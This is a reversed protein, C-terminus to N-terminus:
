DRFHKITPGELDNPPHITIGKDDFVVWSGDDLAAILNGPNGEWYTRPTQFYLSNKFPAPNHTFGISELYAILPNM